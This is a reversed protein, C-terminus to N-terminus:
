EANRRGGILNLIRYWRRLARRKHWAALRHCNEPFTDNQETTVSSKSTQYERMYKRVQATNCTCGFNGDVHHCPQIGAKCNGYDNAICKFCKM